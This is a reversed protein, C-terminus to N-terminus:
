FQKISKFKNNDQFDIPRNRMMTQYFNNLVANNKAIELRRNIESQIQEATAQIAGRSKFGVYQYELLQAFLLLKVNFPNKTM